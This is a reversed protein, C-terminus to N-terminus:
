ANSVHAVFVVLHHAAFFDEQLMDDLSQKLVEDYDKPIQGWKLLFPRITKGGHEYDSRLHLASRTLGRYEIRFDHKTITRLQKQLASQAAELFGTPSNTAFHGARYFAGQLMEGLRRTCLSTTEHLVETDVIRIVGDRSVRQYEQLLKGWDWTRIYSLGFRQNILDFSEDPFELMRLADMVSFEVRDAVGAAAAQERAFDIMKQSVDVGVLREMTPYKQAAEILWGGTGCGVDLVSRFREPDDQEPLVGGMGSTVLADQIRLREIETENSRDQVMYTSPHEQQTKTAADIRGPAEPLSDVAPTVRVLADFLEQLIPDHYANVLNERFSPPPVTGDEWQGVTFPTTKVQKALDEQTWEREVRLTRLREGMSIRLQPKNDM